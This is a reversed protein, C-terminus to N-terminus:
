TFKDQKLFFLMNKCHLRKLLCVTVWIQLNMWNEPTHEALGTFVHKCWVLVFRWHLCVKLRDWWKESHSECLTVSLQWGGMTESLVIGELILVQVLWRLCRSSYVLCLDLSVKLCCFSSSSPFLSTQLTEWVHVASVFADFSVLSKRESPNRCSVYAPLSPPPSHVWGCAPSDYAWVSLCHDVHVSSERDDVCSRPLTHTHLSRACLSDIGCVCVCVCGQRNFEQSNPEFCVYVCAGQLALSCRHNQYLWTRPAPEPRCGSPFNHAQPQYSQEATASLLFLTLSISWKSGRRKIQEESYCGHM